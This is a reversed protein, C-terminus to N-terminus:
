RASTDLSGKRSQLNESFLRPRLLLRIVVLLLGEGAGALPFLVLVSITVLLEAFVDFVDFFLCSKTVSTPGPPEDCPLTALFSGSIGPTVFSSANIAWFRTSMTIDQYSITSELRRIKVVSILCLVLILMFIIFTLIIKESKSAKIKQFKTKEPEIEEYTTIEDIKSMIKRGLGTKMWDKKMRNQNM